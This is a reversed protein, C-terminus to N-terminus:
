EWLFFVGVALIWPGSILGAISQVMFFVYVLTTYGDLPAYSLKTLFGAAVIFASATSTFGSALTFYGNKL